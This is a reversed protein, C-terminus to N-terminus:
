SFEAPRCRGDRAHARSLYFVSRLLLQIRLVKLPSIGAVEIGFRSDCDPAHEELFPQSRGHDVGAVAEGGVQRMQAFFAAHSRFEVGGEDRAGADALGRAFDVEIQGQMATLVVFEQESGVGALVNRLPDRSDGQGLDAADSPAPLDNQAIGGAHGVFELRLAPLMESLGAGAENTDHNTMRLSAFSSLLLSPLLLSLGIRRILVCGNSGNGGEEVM